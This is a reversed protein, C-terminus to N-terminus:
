PLSLSVATQAAWTSSGSRRTWRADKRRPGTVCPSCALRAGQRGSPTESLGGEAGCRAEGGQLVRQERRQQRFIYATM